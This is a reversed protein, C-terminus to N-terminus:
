DAKFFNFAICIRVSNERNILVKHRLWSPFIIIKGKKPTVAVERNHFPFEGYEAAMNPNEFVIDGDKENTDYYYVGSFVARPHMHSYQFGGNHSFCIWSEKLEYQKSNVQFDSCYADNAMLILKQLHDLKYRDIFNNEKTYKFDTKVTDSWPNTLDQKMADPIVEKIQNQISDFTEGRVDAIFIPTSFINTSKV